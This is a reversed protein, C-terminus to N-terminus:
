SKSESLAARDKARGYAKALTRWAQGLEPDVAIAKKLFDIGPKTGKADRLALVGSLYLAWSENPDAALSRQSAARAPEIAGTRLSLDCRAAALGM